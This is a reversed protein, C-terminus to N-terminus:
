LNTKNFQIYDEPAFLITYFEVCKGRRIYENGRNTYDETQNPQFQANIKNEILFLLEGNPGEFTIELDSERELEFVSHDTRLLKKVNSHIGVTNKIFWERFDESSYFEELFLLDIHLERVSYTLITDM